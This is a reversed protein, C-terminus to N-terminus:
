TCRTISFMATYRTSRPPLVLSLMSASRRRPPALALQHRRRQRRKAARNVLQEFEELAAAQGVGFAQAPANKSSVLILERSQVDKAQDLRLAAVQIHRMLEEAAGRREIRSRHFRVDIDAAHEAQESAM